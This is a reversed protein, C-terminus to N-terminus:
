RRRSNQPDAVGHQQQQQQQAGNAAGWENGGGGGYNFHKSNTPSTQPRIFPPPQHQLKPTSAGVGAGDSDFGNRLTLSDVRASLHAVQQQQQQQDTGAPLPSSSRYFSEHGGGGGGGGYSNYAHGGSSVVGVSQEAVDGGGVAYQPGSYSHPASNRVASSGALRSSHNSTTPM